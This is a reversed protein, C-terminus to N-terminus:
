IFLIQVARQAEGKAAARQAHYRNKNQENNRDRAKELEKARSVEDPNLASSDNRYLEILESYAYWRNYRKENNRDRAKEM